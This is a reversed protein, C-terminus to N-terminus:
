SRSVSAGRQYRCPSKGHDRVRFQGGGRMVREQAAGGRGHMEHQLGQQEAVQTEPDRVVVRHRADHPGVPGQPLHALVADRQGLLLALARPRPLVAPHVLGAHLFEGLRRRDKLRLRLMELERDAGAEDKRVARGVDEGIRLVAVAPPPEAPQQGQALGAGLLAAAKETEVIERLPRVIEEEDDHRGPPEVTQPIPERTTSAAGAETHSAALM